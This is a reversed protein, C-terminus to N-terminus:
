FRTRESTDFPSRCDPALGNATRYRVVFRSPLNRVSASGLRRPDSRQSSRARTRTSRISRARRRSRILARRQSRIRTRACDPMVFLGPAAASSWAGLPEDDILAHLMQPDSEADRRPVYM